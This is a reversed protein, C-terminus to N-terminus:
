IDPDYISPDYTFYEDLRNKFTNLTPSEVIEHPLSNWDNVIRSTFRNHGLKTKSLPRRLKYRHGRTLKNESVSEFSPVASPDYLGTMIKFMEILDGRRRRHKLTPLGLARLRDPYSLRQLGQIQKTAARQVSEIEKIMGKGAPSWVCNAYELHPRVLAKFLLSFTNWDIFIFSRRIMGWIQRAKSIKSEIHEKFTLEDNVMVGLDRESESKCLKHGNLYYENKPNNKGLHMVSCKEPHFKILWDASWKSLNDIDNQLLDNDSSNVIERFAKTDDAFMFLSSDVCQPMDNIYIVFLLPGLVSGQPVGSTVIGESSQKGNVVVKFRRDSLFSDIWQLLTGKVGCASVKQLLRKKPVQDFAKMIDCYIVDINGGRDLIKSWEEM